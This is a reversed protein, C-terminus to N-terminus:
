AEPARRVGLALGDPTPLCVSDFRTAMEEHFRRMAEAEKVDDTTIEDYAGGETVVPLNAVGGFSIWQMDHLSGDNPTPVAIMEYWRYHTLLSLQAQVVKNM